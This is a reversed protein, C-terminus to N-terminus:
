KKLKSLDISSTPAALRTAANWADFSIYGPGGTQTLRLPYPTGRSAIWLTGGDKSTDVIGVAPRGAITGTGGVSLTGHGTLIGAFLRRMDTLSTFSAFGPTSSSVKVWRGAFLGAAVAGGYQRWFAAGVHFYAFRGLRIIDIRQKGLVIRGSGGKGAVLRLDLSVHQGSETMAGTVHVSTAADAAAVSEAVWQDPTTMSRSPAASAAPVAIAVLLACLAILRSAGRVHRITARGAGACM